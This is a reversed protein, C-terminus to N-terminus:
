PACWTMGPFRTGSPKTAVAEIVKDPKLQKVARSSFDDIFQKHVLQTSLVGILAMNQFENSFSNANSRYKAYLRSVKRPNFYGTKRLSDETMLEDVYDEPADQSFMERIPARYPQKYRQTIREPLLQKFAHKLIYKENLGRLKWKTPLRFAFEIVRYDLFPHRLEVSHAMAVRDGQSSLLYNALFIEMELVQARSVLDRSYFSEPLREALEKMPDYASLAAICEDSLFCLNKRSNEWRINHSFFPDNSEGPRVSFFEHLFHRGRAANKFIYPYLREM